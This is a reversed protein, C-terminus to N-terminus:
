QTAAKQFGIKANKWPLQQLRAQSSQLTKLQGSQQAAQLCDLVPYVKEWDYAILLLDIGANLARISSPCLGLNYVAGMSMDDTILIGDHQWDKRVIDTILKHSLSAPLDPDIADVVVHAVMLLAPTQSLLHRFPRWDHQQLTTLPLHLRASFHHTDDSVSGLGPFHKLTPLVGQSLLARSYALGAQTVIEADAAIARKVIQTHFDLSSSAQAPKLDLVPSFNLNIGLAALPKAQALAYATAREIIQPRPFGPPYHVQWHHSNRCPRHYVPFWM